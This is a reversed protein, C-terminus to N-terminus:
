IIFYKMYEKEDYDIIVKIWRMTIYFKNHERSFWIWLRDNPEPKFKFFPPMNSEQWSKIAKSIKKCVNSTKLIQRADSLSDWDRVIYDWWEYNNIYWLLKEWNNKDVDKECFSPRERWDDRIYNSEDEYLFKRMGWERQMFQALTRNFKFWSQPNTVIWWYIQIAKEIEDKTYEKLRLDIYKKMDSTIKTHKIIWMSNWKALISDYISNKNGNELTKEQGSSDSLINNSEKNNTNNNINTNNYIPNIESSTDSKNGVPIPNIESSDSECNYDYMIWINTPRYYDLKPVKKIIWLDSLRKIYRYITDQKSSLMPLDQKIKAINLRFYTEWEYEMKEAWNSLKLILVLISAQEFSIWYKICYWVNININYIFNKTNNM